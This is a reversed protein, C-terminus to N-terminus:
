GLWHVTLAPPEWALYDAGDAAVFLGRPGCCFELAELAERNKVGSMGGGPERGQTWLCRQHSAEVGWLVIYFGRDM